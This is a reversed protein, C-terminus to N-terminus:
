DKRKKTTKTTKIAEDEEWLRIFLINDARVWTGGGLPRMISGRKRDAKWEQETGHFYLPEIYIDQPYPTSSTHKRRGYVYYTQGEHGKIVIWLLPALGTTTGKAPKRMVFDFGTPIEDKEKLKTEYQPALYRFWVWGYLHGVASTGVVLIPIAIWVWLSPHQRKSLTEGVGVSYLQDYIEYIPWAFIAIFLTASYALWILRDPDHRRFNRVHKEYALRYGAGTAVLLAFLLAGWAM